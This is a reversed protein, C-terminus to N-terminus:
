ATVPMSESALEVDYGERRVRRDYYTYVMAAALFPTTLASVGFTLGQYAYLQIGSMTGAAQPDWMVAGAGLMFPIGLTPLIVVLWALLATACVRLRGGRALENARRLAKIPGRREIVLAPLILFALASWVVMAIVGPVAIALVTLTVVVPGSGALGGLAAVFGAILGVPLILALLALYAMIGAGLLRFLSRLGAKLGDVITVPRGKAAQDVQHTLGAWVAAMGVLMLVGIVLLALGLGALLADEPVAGYPVGAVMYFMLLPSFGVLATGVLTGFHSRLAQFSRDLIEGVGMPRMKPHIM